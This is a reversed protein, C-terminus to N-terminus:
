FRLAETNEKIFIYPKERFDDKIVSNLLLNIWLLKKENPTWMPWNRYQTNGVNPSLNHMFNLYYTRSSKAPVGTGNFMMRVDSGHLTGYYPLVGYAYSNLYSWVPVDPHSQMMGEIALRRALTFVLDGLLAAIRKFGRGNGYEDAYWENRQLTRFPSGASSDEPYKEVLSVVQNKTANTFFFDSLYDVLKDTSNVDFQAFSFLTGEDEQDGIIVPVAHYRGENALVEPSSALVVGDPRPLYSLALSSRDLIGPVSNAAHYFKEVSLSRLCELKPRDGTCNAVQAVRDFIAQAKTSDVPATPIVSGSNMIAARFLPKGKYTANGNYLAMQDFVSISGSSQGWLTVKDPDGGFYAINDAVWELGMRQDLLGLNASGDELIEAGGLFGFGGLRYNVGVFIFDQNQREAFKIFNEADNFEPGGFMFGGGFIYFLVPLKGNPQVGKPRQISVTLCDEQGNVDSANVAPMNNDQGPIPPLNIETSNPPMQPCSPAKGTANFIGLNRTLKRPPRLRLHDVPADAFAIGNFSEVGTLSGIITGSPIEVSVEEARPLIPYSVLGPMAQTVVPLVALATMFSKM